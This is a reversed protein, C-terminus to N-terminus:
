RRKATVNVLFAEHEDQEWNEQSQLVSSTLKM